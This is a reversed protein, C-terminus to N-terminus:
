DSLCLRCMRLVVIKGMVLWVILKGTMRDIICWSVWSIVAVCRNRVSGLGFLVGHHIIWVGCMVMSIRWRTRLVIHIWVVYKRHIVMIM